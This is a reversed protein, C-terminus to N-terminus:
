LQAHVHGKINSITIAERDTASGPPNGYKGNFGGKLKSVLSVTKVRWITALKTTVVQQLEPQLLGYSALQM